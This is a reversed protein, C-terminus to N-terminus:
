LNGRLQPPGPQALITREPKRLCPPGVNANPWARHGRHNSPIVSVVCLHGLGASFPGSEDLSSLKTARRSPLHQGGLDTCMVADLVQLPVTSLKQLRSSMRTCVNPTAWPRQLGRQSIQELALRGAGCARLTSARSRRPLGDRRAIDLRRLPERPEDGHRPDPRWSACSMFCWMRTTVSATM